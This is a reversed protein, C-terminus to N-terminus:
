NLNGINFVKLSHTGKDLVLLHNHGDAMMQSPDQFLFGAEGSDRFIHKPYGFDNFVKLTHDGKDMIYIDGRAGVAIMMPMSLAMRGDDFSHRGLVSKRFSGKYDYQKIAGAKADIVFLGGMPEMAADILRGIKADAKSNRCGKEKEGCDAPFKVVGGKGSLAVVNGTFDLTMVGGRPGCVARALASGKMAAPPEYGEVKKGDATYAIYDDGSRLAFVGECAWMAAPDRLRENVAFRMLPEGGRLRFVNLSVPPGALVTVTDNRWDVSFMYVDQFNGTSPYGKIEYALPLRGYEIAECVGPTGCLAGLVCVVAVCLRATRRRASVACGTVGGVYGCYINRLKEM